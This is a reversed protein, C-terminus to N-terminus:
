GTRDVCPAQSRAAAVAAAVTTEDPDHRLRRGPSRRRSARSTPDVTPGSPRMTGSSRHTSLSTRASQSRSCWLEVDALRDRFDHLTHRQLRHVPIAETPQAREGLALAEEM